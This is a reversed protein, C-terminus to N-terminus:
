NYDNNYELSYEGNVESSSIDTWDKNVRKQLTSTSKNFRVPSYDSNIDCCEDIIYVGLYTLFRKLWKLLDYGNDTNEKSTYVFGKRLLTKTIM